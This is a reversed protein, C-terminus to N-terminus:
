FWGKKDKISAKVKQMVEPSIENMNHAEKAHKAIQTLLEEETKAKAKFGCNMGIDKCAFEKAMLNLVIYESWYIFEYSGKRYNVGYHKGNNEAVLL